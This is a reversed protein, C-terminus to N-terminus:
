QATAAAWIQWYGQDAGDGDDGDGQSAAASRDVSPPAAHAHLMSGAFIASVLLVVSLTSTRNMARSLAVATGHVKKGWRVATFALARLRAALRDCARLTRCCNGDVTAGLEEGACAPNRHVARRRLKRCSAVVVAANRPPWCPKWHDPFGPRWLNWGQVILHGL